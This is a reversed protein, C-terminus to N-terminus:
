CKENVLEWGGDDDRRFEYWNYETLVPHQIIKASNVELCPSGHLNKETYYESFFRYHGKGVFIVHPRHTAAALGDFKLMHATHEALKQEIMEGFEDHGTSKKPLFGLFPAIFLMSIFSNRKM